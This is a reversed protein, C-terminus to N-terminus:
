YRHNKDGKKTEVLLCDEISIRRLSRRVWQPFLDNCEDYKRLLVGSFSIKEGKYELVGEGSARINRVWDVKRGYTLAFLFGTETPFALVPTRYIRGSRRGKHHVIAFPVIWGAFILFFKNTVYKNFKAIKLPIPM